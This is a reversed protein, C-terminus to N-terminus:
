SLRRSAKAHKRQRRQQSVTGVSPQCLCSDVTWECRLCGVKNWLHLVDNKAVHRAPERMDIREVRFRPESGLCAFPGHEVLVAVNQGAGPRESAISLATNRDTRQKRVDATNRVFQRHNTRHRCRKHFVGLGIEVKVATHREGPEGAHSGPDSIPKSGLVLVERSKHHQTATTNGQTPDIDEAVPEQGRDM